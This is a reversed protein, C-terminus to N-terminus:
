EGGKWNRQIIVGEMVWDHQRNNMRELVKEVAAAGTEAVMSVTVEHWEGNNKPRALTVAYLKEAMM